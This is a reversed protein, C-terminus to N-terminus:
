GERILTQRGYLDALVANLLTARQILGSELAKWEHSPLLLPMMDLPWPREMGMPDAYINYTVGNQHLLRRAEEWRDSMLDPDLPG